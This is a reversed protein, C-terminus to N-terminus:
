LFKFYAVKSFKVLAPKMELYELFSCNRPCRLVVTSELIERCVRIDGEM